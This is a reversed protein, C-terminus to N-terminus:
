RASALLPAITRRPNVLRISPDEESPEAGRTIMEILQEPKLAPNIALLKAALNAVQPSAMSTGSIKLRDGGPVFSEVEYGNAFLDVSAGETTFATKRGASDVAGVTLLNPLELSAPIYRSFDADNNENGSGCVFLIGPASKIAEYLADREIAFMEQAMAKREKEDKGVGNLSLSAEISAANYRWSMNVVRVGSRRFYDVTDRYMQATFRANELTRPKPLQGYAHTMRAGLIRAAPNGDAAIGAVHTGHAYGTYFGLEELFGRVEEARLSAMTKRLDAAEPSDISSQLDISGKVLRQLRQLDTRIKGAPDELTGVAKKWNVLDYAIGHVDDVHGNGDDDRGNLEEAANVFRNAAPLASLDVGSDWVAVVVPHLGEASDFKVQRDAWIDKMGASGRNAEHLATLVRLMEDHLPLRHDLMFRTTLLSVVLPEPVTGNTRELIEQPQGQLGGIVLERSILSLQGKLSEAAEKVTEWPLDAWIRRYHREFASEFEPTSPDQAEELAREYALLFLGTTLRSAEKSELERLKPITAIAEKLEGRQFQLLMLTGYYGKLTAPDHIDYKELDAQLNTMVENSLRRFQEDDEMLGVATGEVKYSRRPLEDTSSIRIKEAAVAPLAILVALTLALHPKRNM